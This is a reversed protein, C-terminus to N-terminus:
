YVKKLYTGNAADIFVGYSSAAASYGWSVRWVVVPNRDTFELQMSIPSDPNKKIQEASKEKAATWIEDTDQRAAQPVFPQAVKSPGSWAEEGANFVGEFLGDEQVVSYTCYKLAKKSPSVFTTRWAYSKGPPATRNKVFINQVHLVQIDPAWQRTPGFCRFLGTLGTVPEKVAAEKPAETKKSGSDGCSALALLASLIVISQAKM